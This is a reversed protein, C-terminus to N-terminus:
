AATTTLRRVLARVSHKPILWERDVDTQHYGYIYGTRLFRHLRRPDMRLGEIRRLYDCVQWVSLDCPYAELDFVAPRCVRGRPM